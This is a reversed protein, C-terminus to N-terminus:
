DRQALIKQRRGQGTAAGYDMKAYGEPTRGPTKVPVDANARGGKKRMLPMGGAMPGPGMGMPPAPPVPPVPPMPPVPPLAGLGMPPAMGDQGGKGSIVINVTTKGKAAGGRAYAARGGSKKGSLAEKKVMKKVLARDMPEDEHKAAGGKKYGSMKRMREREEASYRAGMDKGVDKLQRAQKDAESEYGVLRNLGAKMRAGLSGGDEKKTRPKKDLRKATVKGGAKRMIRDATEESLAPKKNIIPLGAQTSTNVPPVGDWTDGRSKGGMRSLKASASAKAAKKVDHM